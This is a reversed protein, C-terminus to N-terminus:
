QGPNMQPLFQLVHETLGKLPTFTNLLTGRTTAIRMMCEGYVDMPCEEDLWIFDKATGQFSRRGQDFSKLGLISTGGSVHQVRITDIMDQVGSKWKPAFTLQDRPVIGSGDMAKRGDDGAVVEGFLELQIIDRTTENTDGAAWGRTPRTFRKGPWWDPYLGTLHCSVEYAGAVTNHTVICDRTVYLHDPAEVEICVAPAEGDLKIAEVMIGRMKIAAHRQAGAKRPLRFISHDSVAIGVKWSDHAAGAYRGKKHRVSANMGLSRALAAVDECLARNVSYFMRSGNAPSVSGDTDMLGQLLALRDAAGAIMYEAPIRKQHSNRGVLGIGLLAARLANHHRGGIKRTTAFHYTTGDLDRLECGWLAAQEHCYNVIEPDKTSLLVRDTTLGGDGILLGVLYPDIPLERAGEFQLEAREPLMWREGDALRRALEGATMTVYDSAKGKKTPRVHWLHDVDCRTWSGDSGTLRLIPRVGQPFVGTVRTPKGDSGLVMDGVRIEGIPKWGTPTAVPEDVPQAKGIRNAALFLRELYDKGAAFFELHRPYLERRLPGEDPFLDYFKNFRAREEDALIPALMASVTEPDLMAVFEDPSMAHLDIGRAQVAAVLRDIERM